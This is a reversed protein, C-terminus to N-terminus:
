EHDEKEESNLNPSFPGRVGHRIAFSGGGAIPAVAFNLHERPLSIRLKRSPKMRCTKAFYGFKTVESRM